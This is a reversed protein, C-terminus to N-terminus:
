CDPVESEVRVYVDEERENMDQSFKLKDKTSWLYRGVSYSRALCSAWRTACSPECTSSSARDLCRPSLLYLHSSPPGFSNPLVPTSILIELRISKKFHWLKIIWKKMKKCKWAFFGPFRIPKRRCGVGIEIGSAHHSTKLPPPPSFNQVERSM